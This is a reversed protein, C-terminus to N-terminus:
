LGAIQKMRALEADSERLPALPDKTVATNRTGSLSAYDNPSVIIKSGLKQDGGELGQVPKSGPGPLQLTVLRFGQQGARAIIDPTLATWLKSAVIATPRPSTKAMPTGSSNDVYYPTDPAEEIPKGTNISIDKGKAFMDQPSQQPQVGGATPQTALNVVPKGQQDTAMTDPTIPKQIQTGDPMAVTITKGDNAIIKGSTNTMSGLDESVGDKKEVARPQEPKKPAITNIPKRAYKKARMGKTHEGVVQKVKM